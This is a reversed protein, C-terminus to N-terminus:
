ISLEGRYEALKTEALASIVKYVTEGSVLEGSEFLEQTVYSVMDEMTTRIENSAQRSITVNSM